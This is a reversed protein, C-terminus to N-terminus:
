LKQYMDHYSISPACSPMPTMIPERPFNVKAHADSMHESSHEYTRMHSYRPQLPFNTTTTFITPYPPLRQMSDCHLSMFLTSQPTRDM